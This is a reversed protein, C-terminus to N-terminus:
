NAEKLVEVLVDAFLRASRNVEELSNNDSGFELLL